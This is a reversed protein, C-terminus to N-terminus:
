CSSVEPWRQAVQKLLDVDVKAYHASMDRSRHRLVSGIEHLGVGQRLMETAASHRLIHAGHSSASVGAKRMRRAVIASVAAGGGLARLPVRLRLFVADSRTEPRWTLYELMAAGVDQPLPLRAERRGKGSVVISGDSWDVDPLRLGVVDGARLGLRSLLLLIARDRTGMLSTSECAAIIREVDVAPLSSPLAALRWGALAPIALHLGAACRGEIALYRLFMRLASILSKASGIGRCRARELVFQRLAQVDYQGPDDGLRELLDTAGQGYRYLTSEAVGRHRQLWCRFSEVLQHHGDAGEPQLVGVERLYGVFLKAGGLVDGTTGGNSRPCRCSPLHLRFRELTDRGISDFPIEEVEAFQGLHAAARLYRRASWWSYGQGALHGAFGDVHEGSPGSRLRQLVFPTEFYKELM